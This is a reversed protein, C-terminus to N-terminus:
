VSRKMYSLSSPWLWSIGRYLGVVILPNWRRWNFISVDTDLGCEPCKGSTNGTLDYGCGPTWCIQYDAHTIRTWLRCELILETVVLLLIGALTIWFSLRHAVLTDFVMYRMVLWFLFGLLFMAWRRRSVSKPTGWKNPPIKQLSAAM